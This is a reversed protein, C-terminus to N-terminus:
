TTPMITIQNAGSVFPLGSGSYSVSTAHTLESALAGLGKVSDTVMLTWSHDFLDNGNQAEQATKAAM